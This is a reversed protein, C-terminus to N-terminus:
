LGKDNKFVVLGKTQVIDLCSTQAAGTSDVWSSVDLLTGGDQKTMVAHVQIQCGGDAIATLNVLTTKVTAAAWVDTRDAYAVAAVLFSLVAVVVISRKM